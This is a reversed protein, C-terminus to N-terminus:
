FEKLKICEERDSGNTVMIVPVCILEEIKRVYNQAELPLEEFAKVGKTNEWGKFTEYVPKCKRQVIADAPYDDVRSGNLEYHTCIKVEKLGDLVDLKTMVVGSIGSVRIAHKALVVDFWGCRRPRGTTAGYENGEVQMHKGVKDDLQTTLPSEGDRDVRTIYAKCVGFVKDIKTPGVGTGTCAGGASANSSTVFPYHGHDIDLGVAQAGEFLVNKGSDIAENLVKSVNVISKKLYSHEVLFDKFKVLNERAKLDFEHLDEEVNIIDRARLGIKAFKNTYAPAIGKGTGGIKDAKSDEVDAPLILHANESILFRDSLDVGKEKLMDMEKKLEELDLVVGNGMVCINDHFAGSPILHLITKEGNVVVTHGANNGGQFRVVYDTDKALFDVLKGKGEDGYQMGVVINVTM